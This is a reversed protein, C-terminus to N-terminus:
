QLWQTGRWKWSRLMGTVGSITVARATDLSDPRAIFVTGNTVDGASDILSGDSTFMVPTTGTFSIAAAAGFADPTDPLAPDKVFEEEGELIMEAVVTHTGDPVEIRELQIRNPPIFTLEVNRREAVARNRAAELFTATMVLASDGKANSVMRMTIPIAVATGVVILAAVIVMEALTFGDHSKLRSAFEAM